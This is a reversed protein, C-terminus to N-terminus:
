AMHTAASLDELQVSLMLPAETYLLAMEVRRDPFIVQLAQGYARMQRVHSTPITGAGSPVRQGTKFDVVRVVEDTVLLRDVTGAVVTGDPLTAAIPAEALAAPSFLAAHEPTEIIALASDVLAARQAANSVGASHQLWAFAGSRRDEPPTAPLREFLAHLLRGREAAAALEPTPPPRSDTDAAVQSPALPRPPRAEIPAAQTAWGPVEVKAVAATPEAAAVLVSQGSAHVLMGNADPEIRAAQMADSVVSHWSAGSIKRSPKVGALILREGARTLAVYLLRFHEQRDREKANAIITDFPPAVEEKRPRIIPFRGGESPVDLIASTGGLKDPDATTDALIVLPAELGKAGHVTMIRVADGRGEPDRKVELAGNSLWALFQGLTVPEGNEFQIAAALLENIPDRAQRGLRTL